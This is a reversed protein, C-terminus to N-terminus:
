PATTRCRGARGSLRAAAAERRGAWGATRAPEASRANASTTAAPLVRQGLHKARHPHSMRRTRPQTSIRRAPPAETGAGSGCANSRCGRGVRAQSASTNRRVCSPIPLRTWCDDRQAGARRRLLSSRRLPSRIPPAFRARLTAAGHESGCRRLPRCSRSESAGADFPCTPARPYRLPQPPLAPGSPGRPAHSGALVPGFHGRSPKGDRCAPGIRWPAGAAARAEIGDHSQGALEARAGRAGLATSRWSRPGFRSGPAGRAAQRDGTASAGRALPRASEPVADIARPRRARPCEVGLARV